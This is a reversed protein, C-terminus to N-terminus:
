RSMVLDYRNSLMYCVVAVWIKKPNRRCLGAAETLVRMLQLHDFHRDLPTQRVRLGDDNFEGVIDKFHETAAVLKAVAKCALDKEPIRVLYDLAKMHGDGSKTVVTNAYAEVISALIHRNPTTDGLVAMIEGDGWRTFAFPTRTELKHLLEQYTLKNM